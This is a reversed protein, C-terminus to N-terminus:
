LLPPHLRFAGSSFMAFVADVEDEATEEDPQLDAGPIQHHHHGHHAEHIADLGPGGTVLESLSLNVTGM